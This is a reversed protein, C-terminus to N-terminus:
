AESLRKQKKIEVAENCLMYNELYDKLLTHLKSARGSRANSKVTSNYQVSSTRELGSGRGINQVESLSMM